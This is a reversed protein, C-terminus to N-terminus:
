ILIMFLDFGIRERNREITWSMRERDRKGTWAIIKEWGLGKSSGVVIL